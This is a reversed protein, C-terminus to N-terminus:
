FDLTKKHELATKIDDRSPLPNHQITQVVASLGLQLAQIDGSELAKDIVKFYADYALGREKYKQELDFMLLDREARIQEIMVDKQAEIAARQTKGQESISMMNTVHGLVTDLVGSVPDLRPLSFNDKSGVGLDGGLKVLQNSM